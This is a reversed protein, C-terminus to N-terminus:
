EPGALKEIYKMNVNAGFLLLSFIIKKLFIVMLVAVKTGTDYIKIQDYRSPDSCIETIHHRSFGFL